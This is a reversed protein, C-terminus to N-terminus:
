DLTKVCQSTIMNPGVKGSSKVGKWLSFYLICVVVVLCLTLDWRPLGLDHIGRSQHLHLVGRRCLPFTVGKNFFSVTWSRSNFHANYLVIHILFANFTRWIKSSLRQGKILDLFFSLSPREKSIKGASIFYDIILLADTKISLKLLAKAQPQLSLSPHIKQLILM